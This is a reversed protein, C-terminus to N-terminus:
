LGLFSRLKYRLNKENFATCPVRMKNWPKCDGVTIVELGVEDFYWEKIQTTQHPLLESDANLRGGDGHTIYFVKELSKSPYLVGVTALDGMASLDRAAFPLSPFRNKKVVKSCSYIANESSRVSGGQEIINVEFATTKQQLHFNDLIGEFVQKITNRHPALDEHLALVVLSLKGTNCSTKATQTIKDKLSFQIKDGQFQPLVCGTVLHNMHDTLAVPLCPDFDVKDVDRFTFIKEKGDITAIPKRNKDAECNELSAYQNLSYTLDANLALESVPEEELTPSIKQIVKSLEKIGSGISLLTLEVTEKEKFLVAKNTRKLTVTIGNPLARNKDWEALSLNPLTKDTVDVSKSDTGQSFKIAEIKYRPESACTQSSDAAQLWLDNEFPWVPKFKDLTIAHTEPKSPVVQIPQWLKDWNLQISKASDTFCVAGSETKNTKVCGSIVPEGWRESWTINICDQPAQLDIKLFGEKFLVTLKGKTLTFETQDCPRKPKTKVFSYKKGDEQFDKLTIPQEGDQLTWGESVLTKVLTDQELKYSYVGDKDNPTIEQTLGKIQLEGPSTKGENVKCHFTLMFSKSDDASLISESCDAFSFADTSNKLADFVIRNPLNIQMVKCPPESLDFTYDPNLVNLLTVEKEVDCPPINKERNVRFIIKQGIDKYLITQTAGENIQVHTNTGTEIFYVRSGTQVSISASLNEKEVDFSEKQGKEFRFLGLKFSNPETNCNFSLKRNQDDTSKLQCGVEADSSDVFTIYDNISENRSKAVKIIEGWLSEEFTVTVEKLCGDPPFLAVMTGEIIQDYEVTQKCNGNSDSFSLQKGLYDNHYPIELKPTSGHLNTGLQVPEADGAGSSVVSFYRYGDSLWGTLMLELKANGENITVQPTAPADPPASKVIDLPAFGGIKLKNASLPCKTGLHTSSDKKEQFKDCRPPPEGAKIIAEINSNLLLKKLTDLTDKSTVNVAVLVATREVPEIEISSNSFKVIERANLGILELKIKKELSAYKLFYPPESLMKDWVTKLLGDYRNVKDVTIPTNILLLPKFTGKWNTEVILYNSWSDRTASDDFKGMVNPYYFGPEKFGSVDPLPSYGNCSPAYKDHNEWDLVLPHLKNDDVVALVVTFGLDERFTKARGYDGNYEEEKLTAAWNKERIHPHLFATLQIKNETDTFTDRQNFLHNEDFCGDFSVPKLLLVSDNQEGTWWPKPKSALEKQDAHACSVLLVSIISLILLQLKHRM